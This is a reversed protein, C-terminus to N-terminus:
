QNVELLYFFYDSDVGYEFEGNSNEDKYKFVVQFMRKLPRGEYIYIAKRSYLDFYWVGKNEIVEDGSLVGFYNIPVKKHIALFVFPNELHFNPLKAQHGGAVLQLFELALTSRINILVQDVAIDEFEDEWREMYSLFLGICIVILVLAVTSRFVVPGPPTGITKM